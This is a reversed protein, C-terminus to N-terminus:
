PVPPASSGLPKLLVKGIKSSLTIAGQPYVSFGTEVTPDEVALKLGLTEVGLFRWNRPTHYLKIFQIAGWHFRRQLKM